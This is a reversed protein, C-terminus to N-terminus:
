GGQETGTRRIAEYYLVDEIWTEGGDFSWDQRFVFRDPTIDEFRTVVEAERGDPAVQHHREVPTCGELRASIPNSFESNAPLWRVIWEAASPNYTRFTIGKFYDSTQEDLIIDGEMLPYVHGAAMFEVFGGNGNRNRWHIDWEGIKFDYLHAPDRSVLGDCTQGQVQGALLGATLLSLLFSSWM